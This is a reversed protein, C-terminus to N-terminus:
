RGGMYIGAGIAVAAGAGIYFKWNSNSGVEIKIDKHAERECLKGKIRYEGSNILPNLTLYFESQDYCKLKDIIKEPPMSIYDRYVIKDKWVTEKETIVVPDTLSKGAFYGFGICTITWFVSLLLIMIIKKM